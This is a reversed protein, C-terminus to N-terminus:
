RRVLERWTLRKGYHLMGQRFARGALWLAMGASLMLLSISLASQWLPVVTFAARLPLSVPATLPFLSLALALTGHPNTMLPVFFWFPAVVPLTFLGAIQQAERAETATAGITAMLAAILIFAPILTLLLLWVYEPDLYLGQVLPSLRRMVLFGLVPFLLWILLQTLGVSLNGMIKGAMLQGPSVSTIVIEITRNEKEEVVAQLLYGGSTNIVMVFLIGAVIPLLMQLWSTSVEPEAETLALVEVDYGEILREAVQPPQSQVLQSRIYRGFQNQVSREIAEGAVLHVRGTQLYDEALVYYGQLDGAAFAQGAQQEDDFRVLEIDLLTSAGEVEEPPSVLVGSRDVYGLPRHDMGMTVSFISVVMILVLFLPLSIVAFIFRKRKVHRLYEYAFVRWFKMM